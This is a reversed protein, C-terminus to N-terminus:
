PWRCSLGREFIFNLTLTLNIIGIVPVRSTRMKTTPTKSTRAAPTTGRDNTINPVTLTNTSPSEVISVTSASADLVRPKKKAQSRKSLNNKLRQEETIKIDEEIKTVLLRLILDHPFEKSMKECKKIEEFFESEKKKFADIL